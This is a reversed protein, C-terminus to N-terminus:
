DRESACLTAPSAFELRVISKVVRVGDVTYTLTGRNGDSFEVSMTGVAVNTVTSWPRADFAPGTTRYLTGSYRRTGAVREGNSMVFWTGRRDAGYTFLTAFVTDGQHTLNIGWGSEDPNWWLDQFNTAFTRDFASWSCTTTRASYRLREIDKAVEVGEVTYVLRGAAPGSFAIRMRGVETQAVPSWPQANFAPGSTRHLAGEFSGDAQRAGGSMVLWMPAGRADYTFLTAFVINGQHNLNIGWGSEAPNWWLDTYNETLPLFSFKVSYDATQASEWHTVVLYYTGPVLRRTIGFDFAGQQADDNSTIREGNADLLVGVTDAGGGALAVLTGEAVVDLRFVDVDGAYDIRGAVAVEAAGLNVRTAEAPRNGHEDAVPAPNAQLYRAVQPYFVDLRNYIGAETNNTCTLGGNAGLSTASLVARLQLSGSALTFLGSGSSGGQVIGQSYRTLWASQEWDPYRATGSVTARAWKSVDGAPHSISVVSNGVGLRAANWGSFVTGEPPASNMLLLTQDTNPDAFVLQMGGPVQKRGPSVDGAGCATAEHFWLSTISSAVQARGICHNATLFYPEPFKETNLLTGTCVFSGSGDVYTIRAVSKKREAIAADLTADGTACLTDITCSAAAKADISQDFHVIAGLRVTGAVPLARAFLEVAQREGPTWPGWAQSSGATIRMAEVNGADDRVRMEMAESAAGLDLRARLGRAGASALDFRAVYGGPVAQWALPAFDKAAERVSGVRTRRSDPAADAKELPGDWSYRTGAVPVRLTAPTAASPGDFGRGPMQPDAAARLPVAVVAALFLWALFREPVLYMYRTGSSRLRRM